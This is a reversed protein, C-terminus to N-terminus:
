GPRMGPAAVPLMPKPVFHVWCLPAQTGTLCGPYGMGQGIAAQM